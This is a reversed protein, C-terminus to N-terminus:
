LAVEVADARVHQDLFRQVITGADQEPSLPRRGDRDSQEKIRGNPPLSPAELHAFGAHFRTGLRHVRIFLPSAMRDHETGVFTTEASRSQGGPYPLLQLSRYRFALPLGFGAREPGRTLWRPDVTPPNLLQQHHRAILHRKVAHYDPQRRQRFTQMRYGADDLAQEWTDHGNRLLLMRATRGLVTHQAEVPRRFWQHLLDICQTMRESWTAPSDANCALPLQTAEDWNRWDTLRLSGFGRRSRSGLGGIHTLLWLSGLWARKMDNDVVDPRTLIDLTFSAGAPLAKRHNEGLELSYGLYNLGNHADARPGRKFGDQGLLRQYRAKDWAAEGTMWNGVRLLCPSQGTSTSGFFRDDRRVGNEVRAYDGDLARYWYRLLGKISPPRLEAQENPAAGGLFLPTVASLRVSLKPSSAM